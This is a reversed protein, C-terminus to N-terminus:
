QEHKIYYYARHHVKSVFYTITFVVFIDLVTIKQTVTSLDMDIRYLASHFVCITLYSFGVYWLFYQRSKQAVISM